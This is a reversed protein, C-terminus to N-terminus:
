GKGYKERCKRSLDLSFRFNEESLIIVREELLIYQGLEKEDVYRGDERFQRGEDKRVGEYRRPGDPDPFVM